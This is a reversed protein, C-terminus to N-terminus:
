QPLAYWPIPVYMYNEISSRNLLIFQREKTTILVGVENQLNCQIFNTNLHRIEATWPQWYPILVIHELKETFCYWNFYSLPAARGIGKKLAEQILIKPLM